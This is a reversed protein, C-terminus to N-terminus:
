FGYKLSFQILRAPNITDVARGFGPAGITRIPLAFNARNLVNFVEARFLLRKSESFAFNKNLALDVNVYNDGRVTNRGVFGDQGVVFFNSTQSGQTVAVRQAGHGDFFTLGNTTSPRDTSNGDFNADFPVALTFPQGQHAQVITALQWGGFIRGAASQSDKLFPLDWIFSSSFLHRVDFNANGREARLNFSNQPL